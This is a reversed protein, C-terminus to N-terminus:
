MIGDYYASEAFNEIHMYKGINENEVRRQLQASSREVM